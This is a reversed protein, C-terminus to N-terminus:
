SATLEELWQDVRADSQYGRLRVVHSVLCAKLLQRSDAPLLAMLKSKIKENLWYSGFREHYENSFALKGLDLWYSMYKGPNPDIYWLRQDSDILVNELTLDGHCFTGMPVNVSRMLKLSESTAREAISDVYQQWTGSPWARSSWKIVQSIVQEVAAVNDTVCLPVAKVLELEISERVADYGIVRPHNVDCVTYWYDQEAARRTKVITTTM